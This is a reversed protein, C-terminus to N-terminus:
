HINRNAFLKTLLCSLEAFIKLVTHFVHSYGDEGCLSRGQFQLIFKLEYVSAGSHMDIFNAHFFSSHMYDWSLAIPQLFKGIKQTRNSCHGTLFVKGPNPSENKKSVPDWKITWTSRSVKFKTHLRSQDQIWLLGKAETEWTSPNAAVVGLQSKKNGM